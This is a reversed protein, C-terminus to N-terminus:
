RIKFSLRAGAQLTAKLSVQLHCAGSTPCHIIIHVTQGQESVMVAATRNLVPNQSSVEPVSRSERRRM